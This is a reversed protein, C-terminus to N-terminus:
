TNRLVAVPQHPGYDVDVGCPRASAGWRQEDDVACTTDGLATDGAFFHPSARGWREVWTNDYGPFRDHIQM